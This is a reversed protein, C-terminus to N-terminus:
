ANVSEWIVTVSMREQAKGFFVQFSKPGNDFQTLRFELLIDDSLQGNVEIFQHRGTKNGMGRFPDIPKKGVQGVVPRASRDCHRGEHVETDVDVKFSSNILKEFRNVEVKFGDISINDEEGATGWTVSLQAVWPALIGLKQVAASRGKRIGTKISLCGSSCSHTRGKGTSVSGASFNSFSSDSFGSGTLRSFTSDKDALPQVLQLKGRSQGGHHQQCQEGSWFQQGMWQQELELQGRQWGREDGLRSMTNDCMVWMDGIHVVQLQTEASVVSVWTLPVESCAVWAM